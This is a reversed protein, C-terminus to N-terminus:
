QQFPPMQMFPARAEAPLSEIVQRFQDPAQAHLWGVFQAIEARLAADPADDGDACLSTGFVALIRPVHPAMLARSQEDHTARMYFNIAKKHPKLVPKKKVVPAKTSTKKTITM